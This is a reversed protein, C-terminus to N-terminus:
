GVSAERCRVRSWLVPPIARRKDRRQCVQIRSYGAQAQTPTWTLPGTFLEFAILSLSYIDCQASPRDAQESAMYRPSGATLFGDPTNKFWAIGFDILTIREDTSDLDTVIINEPKLDLQCVGEKHAAALAKGIGEFL